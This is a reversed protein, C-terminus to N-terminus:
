AEVERDHRAKSIVKESFNVVSRLEGSLESLRQRYQQPDEGMVLKPDPLELGDTSLDYHSCLMWAVCVAVPEAKERQVGRRMLLDACIIERALAPYLPTFQQGKRVYVTNTGPDYRAPEGEDIAEYLWGGKQYDLLGRLLDRNRPRAPYQANIGASTQSIDFARKVDYGQALTGDGKEYHKGPVLISIGKVGRLPKINLDAWETALRIQRAEPYQIAVMIANGVSYSPLRGHVELYQRLLERDTAMAAMAQTLDENYKQKEAKKQEAYAAKDFGAEM